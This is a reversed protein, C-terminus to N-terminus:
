VGVDFLHMCYEVEAFTKCPRNISGLRYNLTSDSPEFTPDFHITHEAYLITASKDANEGM